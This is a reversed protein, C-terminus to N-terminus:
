DCPPRAALPDLGCLRMGVFCDHGLADETRYRPVDGGANEDSHCRTGGMRGIMLGLEPVSMRVQVHTATQMRVRGRYGNYLGRKVSVQPASCVCGRAQLWAM